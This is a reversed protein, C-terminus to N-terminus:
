IHPVKSNILKRTSDSGRKIFTDRLFPHEALWLAVVAFFAGAKRSQIINCSNNRVPAM